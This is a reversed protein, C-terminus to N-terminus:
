GALSAHPWAPRSGSSQSGPRSDGAFVYPLETSAAGEGGGPSAHGSARRQEEGPRESEGASEGDSDLDAHGESGSSDEADGEGADEGEDEAGERDSAEGSQEEEVSMRGDQSLTCADCGPVRRGPAGSCQTHACASEGPAAGTRQCPGGPGGGEIVGQGAPAVPGPVM